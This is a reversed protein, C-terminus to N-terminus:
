SSPLTITATCMGNSTITQCQSNVVGNGNVQRVQAKVTTRSCQVNHSEDRVQMVVKMTRGDHWIDGDFNAMVATVSTASARGADRM